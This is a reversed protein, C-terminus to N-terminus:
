SLQPRISVYLYRCGYGVLLSLFCVPLGLLVIFPGEVGEFDLWPEGGVFQEVLQVAVMLLPALWGKNLKLLGAVFPGVILWLLLVDDLRSYVHGFPATTECDVCWPTPHIIGAALSLTALVCIGYRKMQETEHYAKGTLRGVLQFVYPITFRKEPFKIPRTCGSAGTESLGV